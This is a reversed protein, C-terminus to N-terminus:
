KTSRLKEIFEYVFGKWDEWTTRRARILELEDAIRVREEKIAQSAFDAMDSVFIVGDHGYRDILFLTAAEITTQEKSSM